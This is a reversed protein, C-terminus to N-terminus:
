ETILTGTLELSAEDTLGTVGLLTAIKVFNDAGGDFDISLASNPGDDSIQIFDAVDNVSSSYGILLASVDIEDGDSLSFDHVTDLYGFATFRTWVFTDAGSEGYLDDDGEDGHLTDNGGQGYLRDNDRKGFLQDDGSRGYIKNFGDTGMLIDSFDSGYLHEISILVDGEADGESQPGSYSLDVDVGVPSYHYYLEDNDPGGDMTDAGASGYFRDWGDRGSLYNDLENGTLIDMSQNTGIVNEIYSFTDGTADNHNGVGTRLNVTVRGPSGSYDLTDIGNGGTFSETASTPYFVQDSQITVIKKGLVEVSIRSVNGGHHVPGSLIATLELTHAGAPIPLIRTSVSEASESSTTGAINCGIYTLLIEGQKNKILMLNNASNNHGLVNCHLDLKIHTSVGSTISSLIFPASNHTGASTTRQEQFSALVDTHFSHAAAFCSVFSSAILSVATLKKM